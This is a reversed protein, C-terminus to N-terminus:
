RFFLQQKTNRYDVTFIQLGTIKNQLMISFDEWMESNSWLGHVLILPPRVLKLEEEIPPCFSFEAKIPLTRKSARKDDDGYGGHVFNEPAQYVAFAYQEGDVEVTNVTICNGQQFGGISRLIGDEASNGTGQLSFTM